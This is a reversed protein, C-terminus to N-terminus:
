AKIGRIIKVDSSNAMKQYLREAAVKSFVIDSEKDKLLYQGNSTEFKYTKNEFEVQLNPYQAANSKLINVFDYFVKKRGKKQSNKKNNENTKTSHTNTTASKGIDYFGIDHKRCDTYFKMAEEKTLGEDSFVWVKSAFRGKERLQERYLYGANELEKLASAIATRGDLTYDQLKEEYFQWDKPFHVLILCMGKAKLSIKSDKALTNSVISFNKKKQKFNVKM